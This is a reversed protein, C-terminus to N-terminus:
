DTITPPTGGPYRMGLPIVECQTINAVNSAGTSITFHDFSNALDLQTADLEFVVIKNKLAADTTYTAAATQSVLADSVSTDLNSAIQVSPGAKSSTGDNKTAQLVSLLITAANAQTIHVVIAFKAAMSAHIWKGTRGAADTAPNMVEVPTHQQILSRSFSM